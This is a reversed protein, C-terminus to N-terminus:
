LLILDGGYEFAAVGRDVCRQDRPDVVARVVGMVVDVDGDIVIGHLALQLHEILNELSVTLADAIAHHRHPDALIIRVITCNGRCSRVCGPNRCNRSHGWELRRAAPPPIPPLRGPRSRYPKTPVVAQDSVM